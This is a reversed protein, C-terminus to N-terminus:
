RFYPIQCWGKGHAVLLTYGGGQFLILAVMHDQPPIWLGVRRASGNFAFPETISDLVKCGLIGHDQASREIARLIIASKLLLEVKGVIQQAIGLFDRAFGIAHDLRFFRKRGAKTKQNTGVAMDDLDVIGDDRRLM